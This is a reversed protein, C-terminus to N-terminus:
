SGAEKEVAGRNVLMAVQERVRRLPEVVLQGVVVAVHDVGLGGGLHFGAALREEPLPAQLAAGDGVAEFFGAVPEEGERTQRGALPFRGARGVGDLPQMLLEAAADLGLGDQGLGLGRGHQEPRQEGGSLDDMRLTSPQSVSASGRASVDM